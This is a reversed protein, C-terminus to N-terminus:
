YIIEEPSWQMFISDVFEDYKNEIEVCDISDENYKPKALWEEIFKLDEVFSTPLTIAHEQEKEEDIASLNKDEIGACECFYSINHFDRANSNNTALEEQGKKVEITKVIM